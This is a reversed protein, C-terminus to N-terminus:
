SGKSEKENRKILDGAVVSLTLSRFHVSDKLDILFSEVHNTQVFPRSKTNDMQEKYESFNRHLTIIIGDFGLGMGREILLDPFVKKDVEEAAAAVVAKNEVPRANNKVSIFSVSMLEYGLKAFDPIMTYEKIIGEKELKKIIRSVTPQSVGIAKALERDSRRSNKMLESILKLESNKV